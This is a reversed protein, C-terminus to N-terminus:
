VFLQVCRVPSVILSTSYMLHYTATGKTCDIVQHSVCTFVDRGSEPSFMLSTPSCILYCTAAGVGVGRWRYDIVQDCVGSYM